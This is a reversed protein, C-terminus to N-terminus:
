GISGDSRRQLWHRLRQLGEQISVKPRYGLDTKAASIDFWHETALEKAVFRTMPPEGLRPLCRYLGEMLLGATWAAAPSISRSVPAQGGADLIANVMWWLRVPQDQSIFYVRGSLEPQRWLKDAALMHADAANDIYITDVRNCGDGVRRLRHGRALIRPTLHNDQPGWILHPRLIVTPLGDKAAQRVRQEALAKTQPYAAHFRRPYPAQENAGAMHRGTFVVSPSSTHILRAGHSQCADIVHQTGRVNPQYYDDYRGWVGAKAATHFVTDVGQCAHTVVQPERLDGQIQTVGLAALEYYYRRSLSRVTIQRAVLRRVIAQGLFGGGGTVLVTKVIAQM